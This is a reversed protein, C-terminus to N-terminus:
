PNASVLILRTQFLPFRTDLRLYMASSASPAILTCCPKTNGEKLPPLHSIRWFAPLRGAGGSVTLPTLRLKVSRDLQGGLAKKDMSVRTFTLMSYQIPSVCPLKGVSIRDRLEPKSRPGEPALACGLYHCPCQFHPRYESTASLLGAVAEKVGRV